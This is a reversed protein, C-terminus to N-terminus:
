TYGKSMHTCLSPPAVTRQGGSPIMIFSKPFFVYCINEGCKYGEEGGARRLIVAGGGSNVQRTRWQRNVEYSVVVIGHTIIMRWFKQRFGARFEDSSM